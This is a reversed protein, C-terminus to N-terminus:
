DAAEIWDHDETSDALRHYRDYESNSRQGDVIDQVPLPQLGLQACIGHDVSGETLSMM